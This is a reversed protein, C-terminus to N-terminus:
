ISASSVSQRWSRPFFLKRNHSGPLLSLSCPSCDHLRCPACLQHSAIKIAAAATASWSFYGLSSWKDLRFRWSVCAFLIKLIQQCHGILINIHFKGPNNSWVNLDNTLLKLDFYHPITSYTIKLIKWFILMCKLLTKGYACHVLSNEAHKVLFILKGIVLRAIQSIRKAHTVNLNLSSLRLVSTNEEHDADAADRILITECRSHAGKIFWRWTVHIAYKLVQLPFMVVLLATRQRGGPCGIRNFFTLINVQM